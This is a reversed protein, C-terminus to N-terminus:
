RTLRRRTWAAGVGAMRVLVQEAKQEDGKDVYMKMLTTFTTTPRCRRSPQAMRVLVQEAKQEDGRDVYMKMLTTFTVEDPPVPPKARAMRVLVQEAKQEDGRDVYMKM